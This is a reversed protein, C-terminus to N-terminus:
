IFKDTYDITFPIEVVQYGASNLGLQRYLIDFNVTHVKIRESELDSSLNNKFQKAFDRASTINGNNVIVVVNVLARYGIEISKTKLIQENQIFIGVDGQNYERISSEWVQHDTEEYGESNEIISNNDDGYNYGTPLRNKLHEYLSNTSDM